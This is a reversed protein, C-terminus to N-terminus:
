SGHTLLGRAEALVLDVEGSRLLEIATKAGFSPSESLLFSLAMFPSHERLTDLVEPLGPVVDGEKFQFAPFVRDAGKPLALLQRRDVKKRITERSVGLLSCVAGTELVPEAAKRLKMIRSLGQLRAEHLEKDGVEQSVGLSEIALRAAAMLFSVENTTTQLSGISKSDASALIREM